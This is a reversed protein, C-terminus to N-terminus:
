EIADVIHRSGPIERRHNELGQGLGGRDQGLLSERLGGKGLDFSSEIAQGRPRHDRVLRNLFVFGYELGFGFLDDGMSAVLGSDELGKALSDLSQTHLIQFLGNTVLSDRFHTLALGELLLPNGLGTVPFQLRRHTTFQNARRFYM